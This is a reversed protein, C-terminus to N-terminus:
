LRLSSKLFFVVQEEAVLFVLTIRDLRGGQFIDTPAVNKRKCYANMVIIPIMMIYRSKPCFTEGYQEISYDM